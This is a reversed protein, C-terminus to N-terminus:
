PLKFDAGIIVILDASRTIGLPAQPQSTVKLRKELLKLTFPKQGGSQDYLATIAVNKQPADGAEIVNYGYGKLHDAVKTAFGSKTTGNLVVIQAAEKKIFGDVLLQSRVFTQIQSFNDLGAKPILVSAGGINRSALYNDGANTLVFYNISTNDIRKAIQLLKMIEDISLDTRVHNGAASILNSVKLPNALTSLSLVKNKLAVLVEQQRGARAFDSSTKRSRGYQLASRGDLHHQGPKITFGYKNSGFKDEIFPDFVPEKVDIDLGGVTDVAQIFGQFDVRVYYHIPIGLIRELNEGLLTPGGGKAKQQKNDEGAAHVENIRMSYYGPVKLYLDRPISLMSTTNNIPDISIIMITDALQGGPHGAGGIGIALVNVRGDGEGKLQTPDINDQLALAGGNLNRETIQQLAILAKVGLFGIASVLALGLILAARKVHRRAGKLRRPKAKKAPKDEDLARMEESMSSVSLGQRPRDLSDEPSKSPEIKKGGM